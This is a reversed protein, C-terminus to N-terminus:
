RWMGWLGVAVHGWILLNFGGLAFVRSVNWLVQARSMCAREGTMAYLVWYFISPILTGIIAVGMFWYFFTM